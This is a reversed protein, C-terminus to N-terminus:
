VGREGAPDLYYVNKSIPGLSFLSRNYVMMSIVRGITYISILENIVIYLTTGRFYFSGFLPSLYALSCLLQSLYAKAHGDRIKIAL